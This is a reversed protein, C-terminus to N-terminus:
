QKYLGLEMAWSMESDITSDMAAAALKCKVCQTQDNPKMTQFRKMTSLM